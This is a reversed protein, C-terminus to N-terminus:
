LTASAQIQAALANTEPTPSVGLERALLDVFRHYHALAASGEGQCALSRMLGRHAAEGYSDLAIARRYAEAAASHHGSALHLGGLALLVECAQQHLRERRILALDSELEGLALDGAYLAAAIRLHKTRQAPDSISQEVAREFAMVDVWAHLERNFAYRGGTFTIWEARGLARRLHYIAMRFNQKLQEASADPWLAAGIEAKDASDVLLLFLLLDKTKSYVWDDRTLERGDRVVRFQGFVFIRLNPPPEPHIQRQPLHVASLALNAAQDLTLLRGDAVALTYEAPPLADRAVAASEAMYEASESGLYAFDEADMARLGAVFLTTAQAPYGLRAILDACSHITAATRITRELPLYLRLAESLCRAAESYDCAGTATRGLHGLFQAEMDKLGLERAMRLGERYHEAATVFDKRYRAVEGLGNVAYPLYSTNQAARLHAMSEAYAAEAADLDGSDLTLNALSILLLATTLRDNEARALVLGQSYYQRAESLHGEFKAVHALGNLTQSIGRRDGLERYLGLSQHYYERAQPADGKMEAYIGLLYAATAIGEAYEVAMAERLAAMAAAHMGDYDGQRYALFSECNWAKVSIIGSQLPGCARGRALWARGESISVSNWFHRLAGALRLMSTADGCEEATQLASRINEHELALRALWIDHQTDNFTQDAHEALAIAWALHRQRTDREGQERLREAAYQRVVAHLRYRVTTTRQTVEVLSSDMLEALADLASPLNCVAEVADYDFSGAFVALQRFLAQEDASLLAYSWDLAARLSRQRLPREAEHGALLGLSQGMREAIQAVSLLAVRAAALEIALPMGDLQTCIATVAPAMQDNIAFSPLRAAARLGFLAMAAADDLPPIPYRMEAALGLPERSTALIHLQPCASLLRASIEACATRLHECNDLVLLARMSHLASALTDMWSVDHQETLNWAVAVAQPVAAEDALAALDVWCLGDPFTPTAAVHTALHQAISTKGVGGPGTLTLLRQAVVHPMLEALLNDRGVLPCELSPLAGPSQTQETILMM